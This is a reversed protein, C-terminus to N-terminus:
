THSVQFSFFFYRKGKNEKLQLLLSTFNNKGKNKKKIIRSDKTLTIGQLANENAKKGLVRM